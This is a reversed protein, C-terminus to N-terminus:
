KSDANDDKSLIETHCTPGQTGLVAHKNHCPGQMELATHKNRCIPGQTGLVTSKNHSIPGTDRPCYRQKPM